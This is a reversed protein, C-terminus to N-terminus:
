ERSFWRMLGSAPTEAAMFRKANGVVAGAALRGSRVGGEMTSPWETATWDGALFLGPWETEQKPRFQDLGTKVSFTARAEKLVGSKVLKAQKVEPFFMELERLASSLIEERTMSLQAKSGAIVLEVYSGKEKAYRRIRSKHFFWEITTDLLWAHDLETIERDYWLLISTFPSHMQRAMKLELDDKTEAYRGAYEENVRVAPLLRQTQEFPLALIVVDATYGADATYVRWRGDAEQVLGEVSARLRVTGGYAEIMRAEAAYFESLPVTPIGLRGGTSSKVFLEHFVKGAYRTSCHAPRDNLTAMVIPNWFHRIALETQKTRKLWHEVSETDEAPYGRFFEMLGRALGIKDKWGLMSMGAFSPAFHFPAPLDSTVITSASGNPELFTQEDYWRIKGATGAQECLEILNTCCGLLVHQSDVVEGLAPHEYSYARGGVYPKRELVTVSKGARALASAAALGAAGAGVVIVDSHGTLSVVGGSV